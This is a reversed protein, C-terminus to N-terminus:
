PSLASAQRMRAMQAYRVVRKSPSWCPTEWRIPAAATIIARLALGTLFFGVLAYILAERREERGRLYAFTAPLAIVILFGYLIHVATRAPREGVGDIEGSREDFSEVNVACAYTASRAVPLRAPFRSTVLTHWTSLRNM